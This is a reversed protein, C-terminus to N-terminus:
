WSAVDGPTIYLLAAIDGKESVAPYCALILPERLDHSDDKIIEGSGTVICWPLDDPEIILTSLRLAEVVDIFRGKRKHGPIMRVYAVNFLVDGVRVEDIDGPGFDIHVLDSM